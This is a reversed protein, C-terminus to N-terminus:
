RYTYMYISLAIHTYIYLYIYIYRDQPLSALRLATAVAGGSSSGAAGGCCRPPQLMASAYASGTFAADDLALWAHLESRWAFAGSSLVLLPAGDSLMLARLLSVRGNGRRHLLPAASLALACRPSSPVGRYLLV